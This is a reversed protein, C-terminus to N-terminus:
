RRGLARAFFTAALPTGEVRVTEAQAPLAWPTWGEPRWTVWHFAESELPARFTAVVTRPFGEATLATVRMTVDSLTVSTDARFPHDQARFLTDIPETFFGDDHRLELERDSRRTVWVDGASTSLCRLRPVEPLRMGIRHIPIQSCLLGDPAVVAVLTRGNAAPPVSVAVHKAADGAMATGEIRLLTMVAAFPLHAFVLVSATRRLSRVDSEYAAVVIGAVLPAVGISAVLLLRDSPVM